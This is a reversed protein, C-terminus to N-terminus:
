NTPIRTPPICHMRSSWMTPQTLWTMSNSFDKKLFHRGMRHYFRENDYRASSVGVSMM